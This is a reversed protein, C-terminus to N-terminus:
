YFLTSQLISFKQSVLGIVREVHIRVQSLQCDTDIELKSLQKKKNQKGTTFPHIKIDTCHLRILQSAM